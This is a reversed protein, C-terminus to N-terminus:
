DTIVIATELPLADVAELAQQTLRLCGHSEAGNSTTDYHLGILGGDDGRFPEDVAASHLSTLQNGPAEVSPRPVARAQARRPPRGRTRRRLPRRLLRSSSEGRKGCCASFRTTSRSRGCPRTTSIQQAREVSLHNQFGM